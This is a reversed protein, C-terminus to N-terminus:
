ATGRTVAAHPHAAVRGKPTASASPKARFHQSRGAVFNRLRWFRLVKVFEGMQGDGTHLLQKVAVDQVGGRLGRYVRGYAGEGQAFARCGGMLPHPVQPNTRLQFALTPLTARASAIHQQQEDAYWCGSPAMRREASKSITLIYSGARCSRTSSAPGDGTGQPLVAAPTLTSEKHQM